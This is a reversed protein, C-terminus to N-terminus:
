WRPVTEDKLQRRLAPYNPMVAEVTAWFRPSHDMARLHSLEHVVVYDIVELHFHMLRWHLRIAGTSSASGWRTAANSLALKNWRVGIRPAFHDLRETFLARAQRTMWARATDRVLEPTAGDPLALRLVRPAAPDESSPEELMAGGGGRGASRMPEFRLMMPRGLFPLITGDHWDIRAAELRAHRQRTEALKRLIWGAKDRVARDVDNLALWRPARVSLGEIGIVFGITRRPGRTFEYAVRAEGLLVERTARPHFFHAAEHTDPPATLIGHESGM